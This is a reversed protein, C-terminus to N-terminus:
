KKYTFIYKIGSLNFLSKVVEIDPILDLTVNNVRYFTAQADLLQLIGSLTITVVILLVYTMLPHLKQRNKRKLRRM